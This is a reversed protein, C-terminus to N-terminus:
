DNQYKGDNIAVENLKKKHVAIHACIRRECDKTINETLLYATHESIHTKHDEYDKVEASETRMKLNENGARSRNIDIVDREGTLAPYGLLELIKNKAAASLKGSEDSFLGKDLIEYIVTRRQAPSMNLDSDAELVVDDSSIDSGKFYIVNLANNEGAYRMLRTDSAFQRYLRLIHRGVLKVARTINAYTANLRMDDQEILLQLGTASTVGSFSDANESLDGTGSIKVFETLLREEEAGFESPVSGLTLMEPRNAGQRYVLIKGPTLGDEALEDIDISGDEVAIVGMSIRSLFEQKRNKVANYARQLPILRDVVGVGFFCGAASQSVQKVFPYVRADEEGNIYPLDGDYLLQGGAVVTLRGLPRDETAREYREIVLEYGDSKSGFEAMNGGRDTKVVNSALSFENLNKGALKVGYMSYIDEVPLAKAHIISPQESLKEVYLTLPYIEFPSVAVVEAKGERLSKGQATVGIKRGGEANWVVKYFATGCIESWLTASSIVGDFDCDEQAASLIASALKASHRDREDESAARVALAPRIRSLKCLRTDIIPAIHNYVGRQQWYYRKEAETIEGNEDLDCYQRGNVFNLNLQWSRELPKRQLRRNEFDKEVETVLKKEPSQETKFDSM